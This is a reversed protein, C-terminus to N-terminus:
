VLAAKNKLLDRLYSTFTVPAPRRGFPRLPSARTQLDLFATLKDDARVGFRNVDDRHANVIWITRGHLDVAAACGCSWGAKCLNDAIIEWYVTESVSAALSGKRVDCAGDSFM